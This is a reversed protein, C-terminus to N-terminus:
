LPKADRGEKFNFATNHRSGSKLGNGVDIGNCNVPGDRAGYRVHVGGGGGGPQVVSVLQTSFIDRNTVRTM